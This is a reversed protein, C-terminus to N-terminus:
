PQKPIKKRNLRYNKGRQANLTEALWMVRVAMTSALTKMKPPVAEGFPSSSFPVFDPINLNPSSFELRSEVNVIDYESCVETEMVADGQMSMSDQIDTM